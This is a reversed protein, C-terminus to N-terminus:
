CVRAPTGGDDVIRGVDTVWLVLALKVPRPEDGWLLSSGILMRGERLVVRRPRSPALAHVEFRTAVERHPQDPVVQVKGQRHHRGGATRGAFVVMRGPDVRLRDTGVEAAPDLDIEAIAHHNRPTTHYRSWRLRM